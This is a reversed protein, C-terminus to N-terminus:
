GRKSKVQSISKRRIAGFSLLGIGALLASSPLAAPSSPPLPTPSYIYEVGIDCQGSFLGVGDMERYDHVTLGGDIACGFLWSGTGIFDALSAGWDEVADAIVPGAQTLGHVTVTTDAPLIPPMDVTSTECCLVEQFVIYPAYPVIGEDDFLDFQFAALIGMGPNIIPVSLKNTASIDGSFSGSVTILVQTLTGLSNDFQVFSAPSFSHLNSAGALNETAMNPHTEWSAHNDLNSENSSIIQTPLRISAAMTVASATTMIAFLLLISIQQKIDM